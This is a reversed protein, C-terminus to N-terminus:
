HLDLNKLIDFPRRTIESASENAFGFERDGSRCHNLETHKPVTPIQLILEDELLDVVHIQGHEDLVVPDLENALAKAATEDAVCVLEFPRDVVCSMPDLCRQCQLALNAQLRGAIVVRKGRRSFNFTAHLVGASALLMKQLRTFQKLAVDVQFTCAERVMLDPNFRIPAQKVM